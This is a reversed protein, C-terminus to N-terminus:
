IIRVQADDAMISSCSQLTPFCHAVLFINLFPVHTDLIRQFPCERPLTSLLSLFTSFYIDAPLQLHFILFGSLPSDISLALQSPALLFANSLTSEDRTLWNSMFQAQHGRCKCLRFNRKQLNNQLHQVMFMCVVGSDKEIPRM